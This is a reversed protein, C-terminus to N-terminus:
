YTKQKTYKWNGEGDLIDGDVVCASIGSRTKYWRVSWRVLPSEPLIAARAVDVRAGRVTCDVNGLREIPSPVIGGIGDAVWVMCNCDREM